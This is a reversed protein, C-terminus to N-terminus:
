IRQTAYADTLTSSDNGYVQVGVAKVFKNITVYGNSLSVNNTAPAGDAYLSLNPTNGSYRSKRVSVSFPNANATFVYTTGTILGPKSDPLRSYYVYITVAQTTDLDTTIYNDDGLGGSKLGQPIYKYYFGNGRLITIMQDSFVSSMIQSHSNIRNIISITNATPADTSSQARVIIFTYASLLNWFHPVTYLDTVPLVDLQTAYNFSPFEAAMRLEDSYQAVISSNTFVLSTVIPITSFSSCTSTQLSIDGTCLCTFGDTSSCASMLSTQSSYTVQDIGPASKRLIEKASALDVVTATTIPQCLGATTNLYFGYVCELCTMIPTVTATFKCFLCNTQNCLLCKADPISFAYTSDQCSMCSGLYLTRNAPCSLCEVKGASNLKTSCELCGFSSCSMCKSLSTSINLLYYGQQCVTCSASSSCIACNSIAIACELCKNASLYYGPFCNSCDTGNVTTCHAIGGLPIM